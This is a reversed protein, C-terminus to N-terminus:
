VEACAAFQAMAVTPHRPTTVARESMWRSTQFVTDLRTIALVKEVRLTVNMLRFEVGRSQAWHHLEVLVGLGRADIVDVEALDLVLACASTQARAIERLIKTADGIIIRGRLHLVTVDGFKEARVNLM